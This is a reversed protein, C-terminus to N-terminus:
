LWLDKINEKRALNVKNGEEIEVQELGKLSLRGGIKSLFQLESLRGGCGASADIAPLTRLRTLM